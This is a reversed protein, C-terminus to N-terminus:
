KFLYSFQTNHRWLYKSVYFFIQKEAAASCFTLYKKRPKSVRPFTCPFIKCGIYLIYFVDLLIIILEGHQSLQINALYVYMIHHHTASTEPQERASGNYVDSVYKWIKLPSRNYFFFFFTHFKICYWVIYRPIYTATNYGLKWQVHFNWLTPVCM